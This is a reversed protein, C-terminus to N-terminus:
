DDQGEYSAGYNETVVCATAVASNFELFTAVDKEPGTIYGIYRATDGIYYRIHEIRPTRSKTVRWQERMRNM